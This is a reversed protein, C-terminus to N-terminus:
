HRMLTAVGTDYTLLRSDRTEALMFDLMAQVDPVSLPRSLHYGQGHECGMGCAAADLQSETEIGEAVVAKGLSGGLSSSPVCSRRTRAAWACAPARVFPRDEPQRDAAHVPPEAVFLRHRLRRDGAGCGPRRLETLTSLAGELREMLINETLELTLQSRSCANDVAARTGRTRVFRPM